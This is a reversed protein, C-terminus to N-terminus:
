VVRYDHTVMGAQPNGRVFDGWWFVGTSRVKFHGRVRHVRVRGTPRGTDGYRRCLSERLNVIRHSLLPQKGSKARSKNLKSLDVDSINTGNRTNLLILLAKILMLESSNNGYDERLKKDGLLPEPVQIHVQGSLRGWAAIDSDSRIFGKPVNDRLRQLNGLEEPRITWEPSADCYKYFYSFPCVYPFSDGRLSFALFFRGCHTERPELKVLMGFKTPNDQPRATWPSDRLPDGNWEFWCIPYPPIAYKEADMIHAANARRVADAAVIANDDIFFRQASPLLTQLEFATACLAGEHTLREKPMRRLTEFIPLDM